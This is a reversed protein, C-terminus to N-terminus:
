LTLSLSKSIRTPVAIVAESAEYDAVQPAIKPEGKHTTFSIAHLDEQKYSAPDLDELGEETKKERGKKIQIVYIKTGWKFYTGINIKLRIASDQMTKEHELPIMDPLSDPDVFANPSPSSM